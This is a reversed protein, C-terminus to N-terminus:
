PANRIHLIHFNLRADVKVLQGVQCLAVRAIVEGVDASICGHVAHTALYSALRGVLDPVEDRQASDPQGPTAPGRPFAGM